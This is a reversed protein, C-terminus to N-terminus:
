GWYTQWQHKLNSVLSRRTIHDVHHRVELCSDVLQLPLVSFVVATRVHEIVDRERRAVKPTHAGALFDHVHDAPDVTVHLRAADSVIM